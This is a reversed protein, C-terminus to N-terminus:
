KVAKQANKKERWKIVDYAIPTANFISSYTGVTIGALLAFVFGRLVDGGFIFIAILVVITTMSTNFTRSLTHNIAGNISDKLDWKPHITRYERIRDFIIVSDNISYGIITLIAAIFAQDVELNFPIIGYFISYLSIVIFSDHFLSIVGGLGWQWNKFRIAIYIFISILAFFVALIAGLKIDEAITPGVKQSSLIGTSQNSAGFDKFTLTQPYYSRLGNYLKTEILSDVAADNKDIMFKTTVKVQNASGFTKVEPADGFEKTLSQRVDAVKVDKDFRVIYTRGGTFDIGYNLGKTAL